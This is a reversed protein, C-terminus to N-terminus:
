FTGHAFSPLFAANGPFSANFGGFSIAVSTCAAVGNANTVASCSSGTSPVFAVSVGSIPGGTDNRTLRATPHFGTTHLASPSLTTAVKVAFTVPVSHTGSTATGTVTVAYTGPTATGAHLTLTSSGGATVSAPSFAASAGAPLGSISLTVTQASGSTVATSVAISGSGGPSLTISTPNAAISFDNGSPPTVTVDIPTTRTIGSGTASVNLTYVGPTASGSNFNLTVSGGAIVTSAPFFSASSGTPLDSVSLTLLQTAGRTVASTITASGTAQPGVTFAAPNSGVSFDNAASKSAICANAANSWELQVVFGAATGHQANCIDGIEGNSQDYWALPAGVGTSRGVEADTTAEVLEHSTVSTFNNFLTPDSGCGSSYDVGPITHDAFDPLVMYPVSLGNYIITGHYACFGGGVGGQTGNETLTKGQPFFLAYITDVNSHGDTLPAPLGHSDLQARLEAQMNTDDITSGDNAPAPTITTEGLSRAHGIVQQTGRAGNSANITTNYEALWDFYPSAGIANFFSPMQQGPGAGSEYVGAGWYVDEVKANTMVRGGYYTLHPPVLATNSPRPNGYPMVHPGPQWTSGGPPAGSSAGAAASAPPAMMGAALGVAALSLSLRSVVNM